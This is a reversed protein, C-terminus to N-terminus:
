KPLPFPCQPKAAAQKHALKFGINIDNKHNRFAALAEDKEPSKIGFHTLSRGLEAAVEDFEAPSIKFKAHAGELSLPCAEPVTSVFQYPGGSIDAVWLTRMWKLGSLRAGSQNRSWQDLQKNPSGVGVKPNALVADSFHNVVMAINFIGGLRTYLSKKEQPVKAEFMDGLQKGVVGLGRVTDRLEAPTHETPTGAVSATYDEALVTYLKQVYDLIDKYTTLDTM